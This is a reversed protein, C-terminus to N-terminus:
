VELMHALAEAAPRRPDGSGVIFRASLGDRSALFRNEALVEADDALTPPAEAHRRVLCQVLAAMAAVDAVRSQADMIRVELTGLRPQLRADWWLHSPDPIAGGAVMRDVLRVYARYDGFHRAIGVRPFMAFVPTRFSAFGSDRGRWFPSNASLALLLPLDDRLGDLARIAAHEDPLAVHVHLAMTPERRALARMAADIQRYRHDSAVAVESGPVLPHMGAAAARMGLREGLIRSLSWRLRGLEAALATVSVHAGTKLEIVCAHTEPSTHSALAPPLAARVGDVRNALSLTRADLLMLEEEVGVTWPGEAGDTNWRAWAPLEDDRRRRRRRLRETM